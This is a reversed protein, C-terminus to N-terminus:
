AADPKDVQRRSVKDSLWSLIFTWIAPGAMAYPWLIKETLWQPADLLILSWWSASSILGGLLAIMNVRRFPLNRYCAWAFIRGAIYGCCAPIAMFSIRLINLYFAGSQGLKPDWYGLLYVDVSNM